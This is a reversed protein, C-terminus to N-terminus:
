MAKDIKKDIIARLKDIIKKIDKIKRGIYDKDVFFGDYAIKNRTIRLDDILSTEYGDFEAYNTQLYEVLRKHAGEGYTKYGDLLLVVSILERIVDYYEKTVNSSFKTIDIFKIMEITTDAMKLVSKAKEKNPTIKILGEEM